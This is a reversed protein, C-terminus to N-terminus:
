EYRLSKVPNQQATKYTFISITIISIIFTILGALAFIWWSLNTKYEFNELWSNLAFYAIPVAVVFAIILWRLFYSNLM